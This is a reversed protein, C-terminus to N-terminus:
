GEFNKPGVLKSPGNKKAWASSLLTPCQRSLRVMCMNSAHAYQIVYIYACVPTSGVHTRPNRTGGVGVLGMPVEWLM